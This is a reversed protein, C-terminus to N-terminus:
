GNPPFGTKIQQELNTLTEDTVPVRKMKVLYNKVSYGECYPCRLPFRTSGRCWDMHNLLAELECNQSTQCTIQWWESWEDVRQLKKYTKVFMKEYMRELVKQYGVITETM